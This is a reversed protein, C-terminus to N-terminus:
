LCRSISHSISHWLSLSLSLSHELSPTRSLSPCVSLFLLLSLLLSLSLSLSLSVLRVPPARKRGCNVAAPATRSSALCPIMTNGASAVSGGKCGGVASEASGTSLNLLDGGGGSELRTRLSAIEADKQALLAALEAGDSGEGGEGAAAAAMLATAQADQAERVQQQLEQAGM